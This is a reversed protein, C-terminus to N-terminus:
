KLPEWAIASLDAVVYIHALTALTQMIVLRNCHLWAYNIEMKIWNIFLLLM